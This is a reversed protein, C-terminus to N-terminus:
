QHLMNIWNVENSTITICFLYIFLYITFICVIQLFNFRQERASQQLGGYVKEKGVPSIERVKSDDLSKVRSL